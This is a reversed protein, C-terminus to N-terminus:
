TSKREENDEREKLAFYIMNDIKMIEAFIAVFIYENRDTVAWAIVLAIVAVSLLFQTGRNKKM